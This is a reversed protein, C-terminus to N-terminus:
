DLKLKTLAYAYESRSGYKSVIEDDDNGNVIGLVANKSLPLAELQTLAKAYLTKFLSFKIQDNSNWHFTKDFAMHIHKFKWGAQTAQSSIIFETSKGASVYEETLVSWFNYPAFSGNLTWYKSVTSSSEKYGFVPFNHQFESIYPYGKGMILCRMSSSADILVQDWNPTAVFCESVTCIFTESKYGHIMLERLAGYLGTDSEERKMIHVQRDYSIGTESSKSKEVYSSLSDQTGDKLEYVSVNIRKPCKSQDFLNFLLKATHSARCVVAVFITEKADLCKGELQKIASRVKWQSHLSLVWLISLSVVTWFAVSKAKKIIEFM